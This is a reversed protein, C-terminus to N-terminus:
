EEGKPAFGLAEARIRATHEAVYDPFDYAEYIEKLGTKGGVLPLMAAAELERWIWNLGAAKERLEELERGNEWSDYYGPPKGSEAILAAVRGDFSRGFDLTQIARWLAQHGRDAFDRWGVGSYTDASISGAGLGALVAGLFVKENEAREKKKESRTKPKMM